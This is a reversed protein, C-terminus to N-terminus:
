QAISGFNPVMRSKSFKTEAAFFCPIWITISRISFWVESIEILVQKYKSFGVRRKHTSIKLDYASIRGSHKSVFSRM